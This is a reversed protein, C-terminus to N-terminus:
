ACHLNARGSSIVFRWAEQEPSSQRYVPGAGTLIHCTSQRYPPARYSTPFISNFGFAPKHSLSTSFPWCQPQVNRVHVVSPHLKLAAGFLAVCAKEAMMKDTNESTSVTACLAHPKSRSYVSSVCKCRPPAESLSLKIPVKWLPPTPHRGRM